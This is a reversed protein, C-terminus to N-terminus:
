AHEHQAKSKFGLRTVEGGDALKQTQPRDSRKQFGYM